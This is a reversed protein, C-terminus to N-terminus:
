NKTQLQHFAKILREELEKSKDIAELLKEEAEEDHPPRNVYAQSLADQMTKLQQAIQKFIIDSTPTKSKLMVRPGFYFGLKELIEARTVIDAPKQTAVTFEENGAQFYFREDNKLTICFAEFSVPGHEINDWIKKIPILFDEQEEIFTITRALLAEHPTKM